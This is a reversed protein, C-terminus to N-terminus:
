ARRRGKEQDASVHIDGIRCQGTCGQWDVRIKQEGLSLSISVDPLYGSPQVVLKVPWTSSQQDQFVSEVIVRGPLRHLWPLTEEGGVTTVEITNSGPILSIVLPSRRVSANTTLVELLSAVQEGAARLRSRSDATQLRIVIAVTTAALLGVVVM